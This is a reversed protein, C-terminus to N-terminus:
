RNLLMVRNRRISTNLVATAADVRGYGYHTSFGSEPDYEAADPAIRDASKELIELAESRTLSPDIALLLGFIGAVIPTAASTGSFGRTYNPDQLDQAVRKPNYGEAGLIDTTVIGGSENQRYWTPALFKMCPGWGADPVKIDSDTAGSVAVVNKLSSIDPSEGICDNNDFNNMAFLVITQKGDRGTNITDAIAEVVIDTEPTGIPYGWSNSIIDAKFSKAYYFAAADSAPTFGATIPLLTCRPCVGVVGM